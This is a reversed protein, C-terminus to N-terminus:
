PLSYGAKELELIDEVCSYVISGAYKTLNETVPSQDFRNIVGTYDVLYQAWAGYWPEAPDDCLGHMMTYVQQDVFAQLFEDDRYRALKYWASCPLNDMNDIDPQMYNAQEQIGGKSYHWLWELQKPCHEFFNFYTCGEALDLYRTEQTREYRQVCYQIFTQLGGYDITLGTDKHSGWWHQHAVCNDVVWKEHRQRAEDLSEDGTDTAIADLAVLLRSCPAPDACISKDPSVTMPWAGDARQVSLIWQLCRQLADEYGLALDGEHEDLLSNLKHIYLCTMGLYDPRPGRINKGTAADLTQQEKPIVAGWIDAEFPKPMTAGDEDLVQTCGGDEGQVEYSWEKNEIQWDEQFWGDATQAALLFEMQEFARQRLVKEGTRLYLLYDLYANCSQRYVSIRNQNAGHRYGRVPMGKVDESVYRVVGQYKSPTRGDTVMQLAEDFTYYTKRDFQLDNSEAWAWALEKFDGKLAYIQFKFSYPKGPYYQMRGHFASSGSNKGTGAGLLVRSDEHEYALSDHQYNYGLPFGLGGIADGWRTVLLPVGALAAHIHGPCDMGILNGGTTPTVDRGGNLWPYIWCQADPSTGLQYFFWGRKPSDTQFIVEGDIWSAGPALRLVLSYSWGDSMGPFQIGETEGEAQAVEPASLPLHEPQELTLGLLGDCAFAEVPKGNSYFYVRQRWSNHGQATAEWRIRGNDLFVRDNQVRIQVDSKM